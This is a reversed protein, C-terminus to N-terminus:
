PQQQSAASPCATATQRSARRRSTGTPPPDHDGYTSPTGFSDNITRHKTRAFQRRHGLESAAHFSFSRTLNELQHMPLQSARKRQGRDIVDVTFRQHYTYGALIRISGDTARHASKGPAVLQMGKHGFIASDGRKGHKREIGVLHVGRTLQKGAQRSEAVAHQQQGIATVIGLLKVILDGLSTALQQTLRAAHGLMGSCSTLHSRNTARRDVCPSIMWTQRAHYIGLADPGFSRQGVQGAVAASKSRQGCKHPTKGSHTAPHASFQDKIMSSKPRPSSVSSLCEHLIM